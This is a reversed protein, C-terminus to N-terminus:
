SVSSSVWQYCVQGLPYKLLTGPYNLTFIGWLSMHKNVQDGSPPATKQFNYLGTLLYSIKQLLNHSVTTSPRTNYGLSVEQRSHNWVVSVIDGSAEYEQSQTAGVM